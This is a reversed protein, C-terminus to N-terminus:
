GRVLTEPASAKPTMTRLHKAFTAVVHDMFKLYGSLPGKTASTLPLSVAKANVEHAVKKAIDLNAPRAIVLGVRKARATRVVAALHSPSPALGPKPELRAVVRFGFRDAFYVWADHYEVFNAGRFRALATKWKALRKDLEVEFARCGKAFTAKGRPAARSLGDRINRAVIRMREPDLNVHPNGGVHIDVGARRTVDKPKRLAPVGASANIFGKAGPRVRRNRAKRLLPPVWAHEMSLGMQIFVDARTVRVLTSPRIRVQHIDEHGKTLSVVHVLDGGVHRTIDALDPITTVVEIKQASTTATLLLSFMLGLAGNRHRKDSSCFM